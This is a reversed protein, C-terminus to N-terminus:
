GYFEVRMFAKELMIKSHDADFRNKSSGIEIGNVFLGWKQEEDQKVVIDMGVGM